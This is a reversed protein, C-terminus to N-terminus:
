NHSVFCFKFHTIVNYEIVFYVDYFMNLMILVSNLITYIVPYSSLVSVTLHELTYIVPDKLPIHETSSRDGFSASIIKTNVTKGTLDDSLRSNDYSVTMVDTEVDSLEGDPFIKYTPQSKGLLTYDTYYRPQSPTPNTKVDRIINSDDNQPQHLYRDLNSYTAFIM